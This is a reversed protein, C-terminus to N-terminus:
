ALTLATEAVVRYRPFQVLRAQTAVQDQRMRQLADRMEAARESAQGSSELRALAAREQEISRTLDTAQRFLRAAEDSGESLSRALVAQTQAVGPRALAQSAVFLEAVANPDAGRQALLALYPALVRGFSLSTGGDQVGAAVIERYLTTADEVRGIRLLFAALRGRASVLAGSGPYSAELLAVAARHRSEAGARDGRTEAIGALDGFIQARLWITAAIRGGRIAILEDLARVLAAEAESDNGQQRLVAARVQRGQGDLVRARDQDTLGDLGALRQAGPSEASLRAAIASDIMGERLGASPGAEPLARDLESMAEATRGQNLLHMARYNRYRRAAVPSAGALVQARDFLAEAEVFQGLNSRQLAENVLAEGRGTAADRGETLVAFYEASEAFNGANNRRYAEALARRRDLAGAQVRAFAVRDGAGTLAIAVEGPVIRNAVVSRLALRLADDYGALGEAVYVTDGARRVYVRYGVNADVLQCDVTETEGLDEIESQRSAGCRVRGERLATLRGLPDGGRTRLAFVQGVSTAADRCVIAYARDFMDILARDTASLQATCLALGATGIRFSDQENLPRGEVSQALAPTSALTAIM